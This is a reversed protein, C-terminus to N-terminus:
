REEIAKQMLIIVEQARSHDVGNIKETISRLKEVSDLLNVEAKSPKEKAFISLLVKKM